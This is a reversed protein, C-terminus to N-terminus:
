EQLDNSPESLIVFHLLIFTQCNEAVSELCFFNHAQNWSQINALNPPYKKTLNRPLSGKLM